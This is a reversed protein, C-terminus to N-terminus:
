AKDVKFASMMREFTTLYAKVDNSESLKTLRGEKDDGSSWAGKKADSTGAQSKGVVKLLADIHKQMEQLRRETECEQRARRVFANKVAM